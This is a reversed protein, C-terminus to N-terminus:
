SCSIEVTPTTDCSTPSAKALKASAGALETDGVATYSEVCFATYRTFAAPEVHSLETRHPVETTQPVFTKTFPVDTTQPPLTQQPVLVSAAKLTTQPVLTRHPVLLWTAESVEFTM